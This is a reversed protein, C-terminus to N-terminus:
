EERTYNTTPLDKLEEYIINSLTEEDTINFLTLYRTEEEENLEKLVYERDKFEKTSNKMFYMLERYNHSVFMLGDINNYINICNDDNDNDFLELLKDISGILIIEVNNEM